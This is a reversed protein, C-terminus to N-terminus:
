GTLVAGLYPLVHGKAMHFATKPDMNFLHFAKLRFHLSIHLLHTFIWYITGYSYYNPSSGLNVGQPLTLFPDM